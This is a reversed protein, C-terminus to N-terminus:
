KRVITSLIAKMSTIAAEKRNEHSPVYDDTKITPLNDHKLTVVVFDGNDEEKYGELVVSSFCEKPEVLLDRQACYVTWTDDGVLWTYKDITSGEGWALQMCEHDVWDKFTEGDEYVWGESLGDKPYSQVNVYEEVRCDCNYYGPEEDMFSVTHRHVVQDGSWYDGSLVDQITPIDNFQELSRDHDMKRLSVFQYGVETDVEYMETDYPAEIAEANHETFEADVNYDESVFETSEVEAGMVEATTEDEVIPQTTEAEATVTTSETVEGTSTVVDGKSNSCGCLVMASICGVFLLKRM